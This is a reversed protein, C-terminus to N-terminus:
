ESCSDDDKKREIKEALKILSLQWEYKSQFNDVLKKAVGLESILEDTTVGREEAVSEITTMLAKYSPLKSIEKLAQGIKEMQPKMWKIVAECFEFISEQVKELSEKENM